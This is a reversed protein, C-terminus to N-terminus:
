GAAPPRYQIVLVALDDRALGGAAFRDVAEAVRDPLTALAEVPTAAVTERLREHGFAQGAADFAETVGDTYLVLADGPELRGSWPTAMGGSDGFDVGLGLAPGGESELAVVSGDRRRLLPSEHGASAYRLIGTEGDLLGCGATVFMCAENGQALRVDLQRLVQDPAAGGAGLTRLLGTTRAMLLAAPIGKDSVDGIAFLLGSETLFFDYLDGGVERAPHLAAAVLFVGDLPERPALPLMSRQIQRAIELERARRAEEALREAREQIHDKLQVRMRDTAASLAVVEAPNTVPPLETDLDGRGISAVSGVLSELPRSLRRAVVLVLPIALALVGLGILVQRRVLGHAEALLEDRPAALLLTLPTGLGAGLVPTVGVWRRGAAEFAIRRGDARAGAFLRALVSDGLRDLSLLGADRPERAVLRELDPHAIVRGQPDVLAIRASLTLSSHRLGQSLEHLTLDLGVVSHGGPSSRAMTMGVERTTFFLYPETRIPAPRGQAQRYWDRTRPDFRYAPRPEDRLVTLREDLWRFRGSLPDAGRRSQILFAAGLPADLRDAIGPDRVPRLLFFDGTEYGLYVASVAPHEALAAALFPVSALRDEVSTTFALRHQALLGSLLEASAPLAQLRDATREAVHEFTEEGAELLLRSTAVYGYGVIALGALALLTVFLVGILVRLPVLRPTRASM